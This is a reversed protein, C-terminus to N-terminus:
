PEVRKRQPPAHAHAIIPEHPTHTHTGPAVPCAPATNAAAPAPVGQAVDKGQGEGVGRVRGGARAPGAPHTPISTAPSGPVTGNRKEKEEKDKKKYCKEAQM